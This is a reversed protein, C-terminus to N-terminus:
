DRFLKGLNEEYPPYVIGDETIFATIYKAPTVDFAPNGVPTNDPTIQCDGVHTVEQAPREEIEIQDGSPTGLDITSKPLGVYFPVNNEHAVVALNYTGIKNAVDGNAAVRDTGVVCLDIKETRMYHGSASDAVVKFPVGYQLLEWATLRAGQLRPRTEDVYAFVNKGSEHAVRIIGLATGYDVAALSGTNCHHFIKADQPILPQANNCIALNIRVDDDAITQAEQYLLDRLGSVSSYSGSDVVGMMRDIAWFLNVATPRSARLVAAAEKVQKLVLELDGSEDYWPVLTIGFAAAAGIAPAGRIVMDKIAGAVDGPDQYENYVTEQPLKRQDIMSIVGPDMWKISHFEAM